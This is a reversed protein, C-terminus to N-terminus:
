RLISFYPRQDGGGSRGPARRGYVLRVALPFGEEEVRYEVTELVLGQAALATWFASTDIRAADALLLTGRPALVRELAAALPAFLAREYLVESALVLEFCGDPFPPAQIDATVCAPPPLGSDAASARVFGFPEPRRDVFTVRWGRRAAILGPLGLGCGMEVARGTGRPVAAALVHAGSWCHAWYPPEAPDDAALLATRDVHAELDAVHWFWLADGDVSVARRAARFPLRLTM